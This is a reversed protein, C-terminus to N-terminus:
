RRHDCWWPMPVVPSRPTRGRQRPLRRRACPVVFPLSLSFVYVRRIKIIGHRCGAWGGVWREWDNGEAKTLISSVWFWEPDPSSAWCIQGSRSTSPLARVGAPPPRWRPQQLVCSALTWTPASTLSTIWSRGGKSLCPPVPLCCSTNQSRKCKFPTWPIPFTSLPSLTVLRNNTSSRRSRIRSSLSFSSSFPFFLCIYARM